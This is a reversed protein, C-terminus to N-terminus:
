RHLGRDIEIMSQCANTIAQRQVPPLSQFGYLAIEHESNIADEAFGEAVLQWCGSTTVLNNSQLLALYSRAWQLFIETGPNDSPVQDLDICWNQLTKLSDAALKSYKSGYDPNQEAIARDWYYRSQQQGVVSLGEVLPHNQDQLEDWGFKLWHDISMIRPTPWVSNRSRHMDAWASSIKAALRHNPTLILRGAEIASRFPAIDILPPLM